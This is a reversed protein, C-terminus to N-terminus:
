EAPRAQGQEAAVDDESPAEAATAADAMRIGGLPQFFRQGAALLAPLIFLDGILAFALASVLLQGFM